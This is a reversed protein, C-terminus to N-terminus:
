PKVEEGDFPPFILYRHDFFTTLRYTGDYPPRLSISGAAVPKISYLGAVAFVALFASLSIRFINLHAFQRFM